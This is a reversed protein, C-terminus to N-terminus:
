KMIVKKGDVIYLGRTPQAVRRGQLDYYQRANTGRQQLTNVATPDEGEDSLLYLRFNDVYWDKYNAEYKSQLQLPMDSDDAKEFEFVFDNWGAGYKGGSGTGIGTMTGVLERNFFVYLDSGTSGMMTISIVYKGKPLGNLTQKMIAATNAGSRYYDATVGYVVKDTKNTKPNTWGTKDTRIAVNQAAWHSATETANADLINATYDTREVGECYANSVYYDFCAKDIQTALQAAEKGSEPSTSKLTEILQLKEASGYPYNEKTYPAAGTKAKEFATYNDLAAIFTMAAQQMAKVLQLKDGDTSSVAEQLATREAGTIIAYAPNDLTAQANQKADAYIADILSAEDTGYFLRFDDIWYSASAKSGVAITGPELQAINSYVRSYMETTSGTCSTETTGLILRANKRMLADVYYYGAPLHEVNQLLNNSGNTTFEALYKGNINVGETLPTSVTATGSWPDLKGTEFSANEMYAATINVPKVTAQLAASMAAYLAEVQVTVDEQATPEKIFAEATEIASTLTADNLEANLAKAKTVVNSLASTIVGGEYELKLDDIVVFYSSGYSVQFRGTTPAALEITIVDTDWASSKFADKKTLYETGDNAVFGTVARVDITPSPNTTGGNYAWVNVTLKYTGAALTIEEAQKYLASVSGTFCLAKTSSANASSSEPGELYNLWKSYKVKIPYTSVGANYSSSEKGQANKAPGAMKWGSEEYDIPTKDNAILVAAGDANLEISPCDEFGANKIYQSTVDNMQARTVITLLLALMTLLYNKKM